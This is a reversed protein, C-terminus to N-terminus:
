DDKPFFCQKSPGTVYLKILVQGPQASAAVLLGLWRQGIATGKREELSQWLPDGALPHSGSNPPVRIGKPALHGPPTTRHTRDGM